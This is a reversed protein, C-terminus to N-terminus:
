AVEAEVRRQRAIRARERPTTGGRIGFRGGAWLNGEEALAAELCETQVPCAACIRFLSSPYDGTEVFWAEPYTGACSAQQRWDNTTM